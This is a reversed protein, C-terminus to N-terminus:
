PLEVLILEDAHRRVSAAASAAAAADTAAGGDAREKLGVVVALAMALM